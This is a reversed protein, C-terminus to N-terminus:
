LYSPRMMLEVPFIEAALQMDKLQSELEQQVVTFIVPLGTQESVERVLADGRLIDEPATERLMHTTNLLGTIHLKSAQEISGIYVLVDEKTRTYPRNANVTLWMDYEAGALLHAFRALVVAGEPDGGVDVISRQSRNEFCSYLSAALAPTDNYYETEMNSSIVRVGREALRDKMLRSRFYANVIDLDALVPAEGARGLKAAYNVAFETKGSGYHGTIITPNRHTM